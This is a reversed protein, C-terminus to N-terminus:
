IRRAVLFRSPPRRPLDARAEITFGATIIRRELAAPSVFRLPPAKGFLGLARVLPWLALWPGGLCPTKTILLGGPKLLSHAESLAAPLDPLLHLLNYALIADFPGQPLSGDGPRAQLPQLGPIDAGRESAIAIMEAADDTAIYRATHPALRLATSGTGCGLELVHASPPLHARTRALTEEWAQPNRMPMAAYRRAVRNWFAAQPTEVTM